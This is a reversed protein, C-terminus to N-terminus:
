KTPPLVMANADAFLASTGFRYTIGPLLIWLEDGIWKASANEPDGAMLDGYALVERDPTYVPGMGEVFGLFAPTRVIRENFVKITMEISAGALLDKLKQPQAAKEPSVPSVVMTDPTPKEQPERSEPVNGPEPTAQPEPAVVTTAPTPTATAAVEKLFQTSVFGELIPTTKTAPIVVRAWDIGKTDKILELIIVQQTAKLSGKIANETGAGSRVRLSTATVECTDGVQIGAKELVQEPTTIAPVTPTTDVNAQAAVKDGGAGLWLGATVAVTSFGRM